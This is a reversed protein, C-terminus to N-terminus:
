GIMTGIGRLMVKILFREFTNMDMVFIVTILATTSSFHEHVERAGVYEVGQQAREAVRAACANVVVCLSVATAVPFIRYVLNWGQIRTICWTVIMLQLLAVVWVTFWVWDFSIHLSSPLEFLAEKSFGFIPDIADHIGRSVNKTTETKM